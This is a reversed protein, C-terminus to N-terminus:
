RQAKNEKTRRQLWAVLVRNLLRFGGVALFALGVSLILALLYKRFRDLDINYEAALFILIFLGLAILMGLGVPKLFDRVPHESSPPAHWLVPLYHDGESLMRIAQHWNRVKEPDEGKLRKYAHHLLRSMKAEYEATDYQAEFEENLELPSDCSTADNEVFYMMRKELDSFPVKELSAQEITQQVIFDKAQKASM